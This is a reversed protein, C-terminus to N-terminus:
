ALAGASRLAGWMWDPIRARRDTVALLPGDARPGPGERALADAQALITDAGALTVDEHFQAALEYFRAVDADFGTTAGDVSVAVHLVVYPM